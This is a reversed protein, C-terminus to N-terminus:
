NSKVCRFGHNTNKTGVDYHSRITNTGIETNNWAGGRAVKFDGDTPRRTWPLARNTTIAPMSIQV